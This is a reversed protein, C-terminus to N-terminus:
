LNGDRLEKEVNWFDKRERLKSRKAVFVWDMHFIAGDTQRGFASGFDYLAYGRRDMYAHVQAVNPAGLNYELLAVELQIVEFCSIEHELGALIALEAGQCDIKLFSSQLGPYRNKKFHNLLIPSLKQTSKETREKPFATDEPFISSGANQVYFTAMQNHSGLLTDYYLTVKPPILMDTITQRISTDSEERADFLIYEADPWVNVCENFFEGNSTGVDVVMEPKFGNAKLKQLHRTDEIYDIM